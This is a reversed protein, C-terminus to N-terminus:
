RMLSSCNNKALAAVPRNLAYCNLKEFHDAVIAPKLRRWGCPLKFPRFETFASVSGWFGVAASASASRAAM